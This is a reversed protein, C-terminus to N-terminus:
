RLSRNCMNTCLFHVEHAVGWFPMVLSRLMGGFLPVTGELTGILLGPLKLKWQCWAHTPPTHISTTSVNSSSNVDAFASVLMKVVEYSSYSAALHLATRGDQLLFLNSWQWQSCKLFLMLKHFFSLVKLASAETSRPRIRAHVQMHMWMMQAHHNIICHTYSIVSTRLNTM